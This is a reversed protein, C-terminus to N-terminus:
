PVGAQQVIRLLGALGRSGFLLVFGLLFEVVSVILRIKFQVPIQQNYYSHRNILWYNLVQESLRPLADALVFVGVISFGIVQLDSSEVGPKVIAADDKFMTRSLFDARTWLFWAFLLMLLLPIVTPMLVAIKAAGAQELPTGIQYLLLPTM